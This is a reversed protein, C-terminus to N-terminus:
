LNACIGICKQCLFMHQWVEQNANAAQLSISGDKPDQGVAVSSGQDGPQHGSVQAELRQRQDIPDTLESFSNALERGALLSEGTHVTKHHQQTIM